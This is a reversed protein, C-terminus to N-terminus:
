GWRSMTLGDWGGIREYSIIEKYNLWHNCGSLVADLLFDLRNGLEILDRAFTRIVLIDRKAM